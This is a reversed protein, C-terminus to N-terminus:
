WFIDYASCEVDDKSKAINKSDDGENKESNKREIGKIQLLKWHSEQDASPKASIRTKNNSKNCNGSDQFNCGLLHSELSPM